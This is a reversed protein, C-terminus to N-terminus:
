HKVDIVIRTPNQLTTVKFRQRDKVGVAWSVDAEFDCVSKAETISGGPGPVQLSRITSRGNDDHAQAPEMRVYLIARGTTTVPFGSGCQSVSTVYEVRALPRQGEFEFVIRDWGGQETHAGIRVDRLIAVGITPNPSPQVVVPETSGGFNDVTGEIPRFTAPPTAGSSDGNDDDSCAVLAFAIALAALIRLM